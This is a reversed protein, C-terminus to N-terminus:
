ELLELGEHLLPGASRGSRSRGQSICCDRVPRRLGEHCGPVDDEIGLTACVTKHRSHCRRPDAVGRDARSSATKAVREGGDRPSGNASLWSGTVPVLDVVADLQVHDRVVPDHVVDRGNDRGARAGGLGVDRDRCIPDAVPSRRRHTVAVDDVVGRLVCRRKHRLDQGGPEVDGGRNGRSRRSVGDDQVLRGHRDGRPNMDVVPARPHDIGTVRAVDHGRASVVDLVERYVALAQLGARYGNAGLLGTGIRGLADGRELGVEDDARFACDVGISSRGWGIKLRGTQERLANDSWVAEHVGAVVQGEDPIVSEQGDAQEDVGVVKLPRVDRLRDLVSESCDDTVNHLARIWLDLDRVVLASAPDHHLDRALQVDVVVGVEHHVVALDHGPGTPGVEVALDAELADHVNSGIRIKQETSGVALDIQEILPGVRVIAGQVRRLVHGAPEIKLFRALGRADLRARVDDRVELDSARHDVGDLCGAVEVELGIVQDRDRRLLLDTAAGDAREGNARVEHAHGARYLPLVGKAPPPSM